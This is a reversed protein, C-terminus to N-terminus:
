KCVEYLVHNPPTTPCSCSLPHCSCYKNQRGRRSYSHLPLIIFLVVFLMNLNFRACGEEDHVHRGGDGYNRATREEQDDEDPPLDSADLFCRAGKKAKSLCLLMSFVLVYPKSCRAVQPINTKDKLKQHMCCKSYIGTSKSCRGIM